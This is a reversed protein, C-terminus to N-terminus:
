FICKLTKADYLSFGDNVQGQNEYKDEYISQVLNTDTFLTDDPQEVM